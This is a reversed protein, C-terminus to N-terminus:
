AGEIGDTSLRIKKKKQMKYIRVDCVPVFRILIFIPLAQKVFAYLKKAGIKIKLIM